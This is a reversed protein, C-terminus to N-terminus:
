SHAAPSPSVFRKAYTAAVGILAGIVLLLVAYALPRRDKWPKPMPATWGDRFDALQARLRTAADGLRSDVASQLSPTKLRDALRLPSVLLERAKDIQGDLAVSVGDLARRWERGRGEVVKAVENLIECLIKGTHDEYIRIAAKITAGSQLRGTATHDALMANIASQM